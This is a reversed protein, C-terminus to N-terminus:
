RVPRREATRSKRREAEINMDISRGIRKGMNQINDLVTRCEDTSMGVFRERLREMNPQVPEIGYRRCLIYSVSQADLEYRAWSYERNYGKDHFRTLAVEAAISAFAEQDSFDPNVALERKEEDFFAAADMEKDVVPEAKSYNLLTKLATAMDPTDERLVKQKLDRGQTQSIDYADALAYAKTRTDRAFIKVGQDQEDMMVTRGLTQWRDRTGFITADRMGALMIAVNGASYTPNDGQMTLYRIYQDPDSVIMEIGQDQMETVSDRDAQQQTKWQTDSENKSTIIEELNAM